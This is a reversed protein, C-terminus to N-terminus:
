SLWLLVETNNVKYSENLTLHYRESTDGGQLSTLYNHVIPSSGGVGVISNRVANFWERWKHNEGIPDRPMPPIPNAM